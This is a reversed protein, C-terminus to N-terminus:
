FCASISPVPPQPLLSYSSFSATSCNKARSGKALRLVFLPAVLLLVTFGANRVPGKYFQLLPSMALLFACIRDFVTTHEAGLGAIEEFLHDYLGITRQKM